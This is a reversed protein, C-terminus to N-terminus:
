RNKYTSQRPNSIPTQLGVDISPTICLDLMSIAKKTRIRGYAEETTKTTKHGMSVSVASILEPRADILNQCYTRRSYQYNFETLGLENMVRNKLVKMGNSSYMGNGDLQKLPPILIDTGLGVQDLMRARVLLYKQLYLRGDPHIFAQRTQGWKGKGKVETVLLSSCDHDIDSITAAKLEKVRLGSSIALVVAAYSVVRYWIKEDIYSDPINISNATQIIRLREDDELAPLRMGADRPMLSKYRLKAQVGALNGINDLLEKFISFYKAVTRDAVEGSHTNQEGSRVLGMWIMLDDATLKLPNTTSIRGKQRLYRLDRYIMNYTRVKREMTSKAINGKLTILYINAYDPFTLHKKHKLEELNLLLKNPDKVPKTDTIVPCTDDVSTSIVHNTTAGGLSPIGYVSILSEVTLSTGTRRM